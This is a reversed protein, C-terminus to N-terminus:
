AVKRRNESQVASPDREFLERLFREQPKESATKPIADTVQIFSPVMASELKQRCWAFLRQCDFGSGERPVVSAVLDKEGPAGSAATVGWVFVDAVDPHEALTKEVLAPNVFEGNHRIGGGIRYQYFIWGQPDRTVVDGTRLWGGETKRASAEPQGIYAVRMPTGDAQGFWLEGAAGEPVDRGEEDVIRVLLSPPAKGCSGAPGANAPNLLLGGEMAGYFEVIDVGFRAQFAEWIASPMGASIVHRVKHDRDGSAPPESYIATAMGGLLSFTTCGNQRIVDWLRSKTFRRSFVARLGMALSPALTVYQANGHTLSLGTYPSDGATYGFLSEGYGSAAIFRGHTVVIGKPDGTTGSTYMIQMPAAADNVLLPLEAGDGRLREISAVRSDTEDLVEDGIIVILRLDPLAPAAETLAASSYDGAVVVVCGADRLMYSLKDGRMRPDLPVLECGIISTAIMLEVFEPHNQLLLGVRDGVSVGHATLGRAFAQGGRWLESYTRTEQTGEHEFVLVELDPQSAARDRVLHGITPFTM